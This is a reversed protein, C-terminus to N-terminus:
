GKALVLLLRDVKDHSALLPEAHDLSGRTRALCKQGHGGPGHAAVEGVHNVTFNELMLDCCVERLGPREKAPPVIWTHEVRIQIAIAADM